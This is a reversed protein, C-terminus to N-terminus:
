WSALPPCVPCSRWDRWTNWAFWPDLTWSWACAILYSSCANRLNYVSNSSTEVRLLLSSTKHGTTDVERYLEWCSLTIPYIAILNRDSDFILILTLRCWYQFTGFGCSTKNAFVNECSNRLHFSQKNSVCIHAASVCTLHSTWVLVHICKFNMCNSQSLGKIISQSKTLGKICWPLCLLLLVQTIYYWRIWNSQLLYLSWSDQVIWKEKTLFANWWSKTSAKM